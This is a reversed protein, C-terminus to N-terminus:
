HFSRGYNYLSPFSFQARDVYVLFEFQQSELCLSKAGYNIVLAFFSFIIHLVSVCTSFNSNNWDNCFNCVKTNKYVTRCKNCNCYEVLACPKSTVISIWNDFQFQIQIVKCRRRATDTEFLNIGVLQYNTFNM